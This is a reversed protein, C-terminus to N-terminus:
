SFVRQVFFLMFFFAWLAALLLNWTSNYLIIFTLFLLSEYHCGYKLSKDLLLILSLVAYTIFFLSVLLPLYYRHRISFFLMISYFLSLHRISLLFISLYLSLYSYFFFLLLSNSHCISLGVDRSIKIPRM